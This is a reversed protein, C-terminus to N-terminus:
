LARDWVREEKTKLGLLLLKLSFCAEKKSLKEVYPLGPLM